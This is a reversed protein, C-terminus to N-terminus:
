EPLIKYNWEGHFENPCVNLEAWQKDTIEIGTEYQKDDIECAVKLGKGTTTNAILSVIVQYSILPRGRWNKSIYSFLQHEIKNWKSTGPPFHLVEVTLGTEDAFKQLEYKWLKGKSSNSGGGDATILLSEANNHYYIGMKYWWNRISQVAFEATDKTIGVNVWGINEKIDFVGYPFAVGSAETLFDYANVSTAEGKPHWEVGQNKFNGIMERKKADVSIVPQQDSMYQEVKKHIYEFQVDRDAHSKGEYRKRNSQLSFGHSKLSNGIIRHSVSIGNAKLASEIHRLSKSVWQLPSEPEGRTHPMIFAEIQKWIENTISYKRGGGEKRQRRNIGHKRETARSELEAIGKNITNHSIGLEKEILRKGGRGLAKAESAVYLRVQEENLCPMFAAMKKIVEANM